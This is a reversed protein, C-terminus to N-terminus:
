QALLRSHGVAVNDILRVGHFKTAVIWHCGQLSGEPSEFTVPDVLDLYEVEFEHIALHNSASTIMRRLDKLSSDSTAQSLSNLTRHLECAKERQVETLYANRSSRALGREDRRTELFRLQLNLNLDLCMRNLVACQQLDKLGFWAETPQVINFLKLVVTAVGQFHGPRRSGEFNESPGGVSVLTQNNGYLSDVNPAFIADVGVSSAMEFDREEQRPYKSLDEHPGFQLPNVFLSVICRGCSDKAARMLDLHGDHFAGMTPVFGVKGQGERFERVEPITRLVKL